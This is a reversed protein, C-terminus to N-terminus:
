WRGFSDDIQGLLGYVLWGVVVLAVIAGLMFGAFFILWGFNIM